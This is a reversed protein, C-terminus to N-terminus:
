RWYQAWRHAREFMHQFLASSSDNILQRMHRVAAEDDLDPRLKGQLKLLMTEPVDPIDAINSGAMLHFLNIILRSSKRLINYAECCYTQFRTYYSSGAGGMAEVMERCIKMPPPFPKPDRGMIYGFDIHFLRGDECLMLNDLHRDGVGLIYTIVCYGACSKVFTLLAEPKIGYLGAPDPNYTALYKEITSYQSLVTAVPISPVFEVLGSDSGTALVRYPTLNLDLSEKKLLLDMLSIMQVILQDQRLDDGKKYIMTVCDDPRINAKARQGDDSGDVLRQPDRSKKIFCLRLPSLASKFVGSQEPVVETVMLDPDLPLMLGEPFKLSEAYLGGKRIIDRLKESKGKAGRVSKLEKAISSLMSLFEKQLHLQEWTHAGGDARLTEVLHAYVKAFRVSYKPDEMAVSLYWHLDNAMCRNCSARMVLLRALPSDDEREHRLAQVLQLLFTRLQLDSAQALAHAAHTRIAENSVEQSLLPLADPASVPAWTAALATAQRAEAADSWDVSRAFHALAAGDEKLVYRFRWLLDRQAASLPQGPPHQMIEQIQLLQAHNPKANADLVGRARAIGRELKRAKMEAASTHGTEADEVFSKYTGAVLVYDQEEAGPELSATDSSFNDQFLVAKSFELLKLDLLVAHKNRLRERRKMAAERCKRLALADLWPPANRADKLMRELDNWDEEEAENGHNKTEEEEVWQDQQQANTNKQVLAMAVTRMGELLRGKSQSFLKLSGRAVLAGRADVMRIELEANRPLDAVRAGFEMWEEVFQAKRRGRAGEPPTQAQAMPARACVGLPMLVAVIQMANPLQEGRECEVQVPMAKWATRVDASAHFAMTAAMKKTEHNRAKRNEPGFTREKPHHLWLEM